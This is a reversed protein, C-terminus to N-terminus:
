FGKESCTSTAFVKDVKKLEDLMGGSFCNDFFVFLQCKVDKVDEYFEKDTYSGKKDGDCDYMCLYSNGEGDGNGHGSVVIAVTDNETIKSLLKTIRHRVHKETALGSYHPYNEKHKDGYVYLKYEKKKFFQYWSTVDEDCFNLDGISKYDSVGILIAYKKGVSSGGISEYKPESLNSYTQNAYVDLIGKKM